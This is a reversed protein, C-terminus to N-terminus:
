HSYEHHTASNKTDLTEILCHYQKSEFEIDQSAFFDHAGDVADQMVAVVYNEAHVSEILKQPVSSEIKLTNSSKDFSHFRMGAFGPTEDNGPMLFYLDINPKITQVPNYRYQALDMAVKSLAKCFPTEDLQRDPLFVTIFLAM